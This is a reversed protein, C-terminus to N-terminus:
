VSVVDGNVTGDVQVSGGVAVVDGEVTEDSSVSVNSGIRVRDGGRGRSRRTRRQSSEREPSPPPTSVQPTPPPEASPQTAPPQSAPPLSFRHRRESDDLYSLRLVTEAADGLRSRVEAGTAPQGDIAISGSTIEISRVGAIPTRPSLVVGDRLPLVDFRREVEARLARDRAEQAHSTSTLCVLALVTLFGLKALRMM